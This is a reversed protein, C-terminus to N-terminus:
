GNQGYDLSLAEDDWVEWYDLYSQISTAVGNNETRMIPLTRQGLGSISSPGFGLTVPAAMGTIWYDLTDEGTISFYFNQFTDAAPAIGSDSRFFTAGDWVEMRWNADGFAGQDRVFRLWWSSATTNFLGFSDRRTASAVLDLAVRAMFSQHAIDSDLVWGPPGLLQGNDAAGGSTDINMVGGQTQLSGVQVVRFETTGVRLTTYPEPPITVLTTWNSYMFDDFFRHPRAIRGNAEINVIRRTSNQQQPARISGMVGNAAMIPFSNADLDLGIGAGPSEPTRVSDAVVDGHNGGSKHQFALDTLHRPIATAWSGLVGGIIDTLQRRLLQFARHLDTVPALTRDADRDNAGDGWEQTYTASADGEFYFHRYDTVSAIKTAGDMVVEWIKMWEGSGPPAAAADRFDVEWSAVRRTAVNDVFEVPGTDPNWFVRNQFTSPTNVARIYVAQTSSPAATSFDLIRSAPGEDGQVLGFLLEADDTLLPLIAGGRNLTAQDDSGFLILSFGFGGLVRGSTAAGGTTRGSPLALTRGERIQDEQALKGGAGDEYDTIGVRQNPLINVRDM